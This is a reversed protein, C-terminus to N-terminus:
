INNQFILKDLIFYWGSGYEMDYYAQVVPGWEELTYEPLRRPIKAKWMMQKVNGEQKQINSKYRSFEMRTMVRSTYIRMLELAYFLCYQDENKIEMICADDVNRNIINAFRKRGMGRTTRTRPLAKSNIGSVIVKFPEGYLNIDEHSQQVKKFLNLMADVTNENPPRMPIGFDSALLQSSVTLGIMDVEMNAVRSEEIAKHQFCHRLCQQFCHRLIETPRLCQQFCHRLIETPDEISELNELVFSQQYRTQKFKYNTDIDGGLERLYQDYNISSIDSNASTIDSYSRKSM